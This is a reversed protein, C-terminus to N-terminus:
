CMERVELVHWSCLGQFSGTLLKTLSSASALAPATVPLDQSPSLSYQALVPCIMGTTHVMSITDIDQPHQKPSLMSVTPLLVGRLRHYSELPLLTMKSRTVRPALIRLYGSQDRHGVWPLIWCPNTRNFLHPFKCLLPDTHVPLWLSFIPSRPLHSTIGRPCLEPVHVLSKGTYGM